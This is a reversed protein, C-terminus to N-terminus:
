LHCQTCQVWVEEPKSNSFMGVCILCFCKEVSSNPRNLSKGMLHISEKSTSRKSIKDNDKVKKHQKKHM